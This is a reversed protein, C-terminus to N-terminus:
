NYDLLILLPTPLMHVTFREESVALHALAPADAGPRNSAGNIAPFQFGDVDPCTSHNRQRFNLSGLLEPDPAWPAAFGSACCLPAGLATLM